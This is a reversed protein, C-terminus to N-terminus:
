HKQAGIITSLATAPGAKEEKNLLTEDAVAPLLGPVFRNM